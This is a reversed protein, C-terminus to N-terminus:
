PRGLQQLTKRPMVLGAFRHWGRQHLPDLRGGGEVLAKGGGFVQGAPQDVHLQVQGTIPRDIRCGEFPVFQRPQAHGRLDDHAMTQGLETMEEGAVTVRGAVVTIEPGIGEGGIRSFREDLGAAEVVAGGCFPEAGM